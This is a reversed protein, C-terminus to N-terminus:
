LLIYTLFNHPQIIDRKVFRLEHFLYKRPFGWLYLNSLFIFKIEFNYLETQSNYLAYFEGVWIVFVNYLEVGCNELIINNVSCFNGSILSCTIKM